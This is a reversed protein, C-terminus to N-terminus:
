DEWDSLEYDSEMGLSSLPIPKVLDGKIIRIRNDARRVVNKSYVHPSQMPSAMRGLIEQSVITEQTYIVDVGSYNRKRLRQKRRNSREETIAFITLRRTALTSSTLPESNKSERNTAQDTTTTTASSSCVSDSRAWSGYDSSSRSSDEASGISSRSASLISYRSTVSSKKKPMGAASEQGLQAFNPVRNSNHHVRLLRVKPPLHHEIFRFLVSSNYHRFGLARLPLAEFLRQVVADPVPVENLHFIFPPLDLDTVLKMDMLKRLYHLRKTERGFTCGISLRKCTAALRESIADMSCLPLHVGTLQLNEVPGRIKQVLSRSFFTNCTSPQCASATSDLILLTKLSPRSLLASIMKSSQKAKGFYRSCNWLRLVELSNMRAVLGSLDSPLCADWVTLEKLTTMRALMTRLPTITNKSPATRIRHTQGSRTTLKIHYSVRAEKEAFQFGIRSRTTIEATYLGYDECRIDVAEVDGWDGCVDRFRRCTSQLCMRDIPSLQAGIRQLISKPFTEYALTLEQMSKNSSTALLLNSCTPPKSAYSAPLICQMLTM